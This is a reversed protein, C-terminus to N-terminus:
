RGDDVLVSYRDRLVSRSFRKAGGGADNASPRCPPRSPNRLATKGTVEGEGGGGAPRRRRRAKEAAKLRWGRV